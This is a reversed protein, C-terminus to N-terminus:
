SHRPPRNVGQGIHPLTEKIYRIFPLVESLEKQNHPRRGDLSPTPASTCSIYTCCIPNAQKMFTAHDYYHCNGSNPFFAEFSSVSESNRKAYNFGSPALQFHPFISKNFPYNSNCKLFVFLVM